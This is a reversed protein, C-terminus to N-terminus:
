IRICRFLEFEALAAELRQLAETTDMGEKSLRSVEDSAKRIKDYIEAERQRNTSLTRWVLM